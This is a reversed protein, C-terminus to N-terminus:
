RFAAAVGAVAAFARNLDFEEFDRDRLVPRLEADLQAELDALRAETVNVAENGPVGLKARVVELLRTDELRLGFRRIAHDIDYFDRIAVDRRSLAARLKEALAESRSLCPVEVSPALTSRSVPDLLLTRALGPVAPMLLPERLSVEIKITEELMGLLSPYSIVASYQRAENAGMLPNVVRFCTIQKSIAAVARKAGAARRSRDARSAVVATPILFDLDESLRYFGLHVKALSTGGRFILDAVESLYQLLVSCFYDKEILRSAFGTEAATFNVAERFLIPDEHVHLHSEEAVIM